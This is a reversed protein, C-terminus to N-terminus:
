NLLSSHQLFLPVDPWTKFGENPPPHASEQPIPSFPLRDSGREAIALSRSENSPATLIVPQDIPREEHASCCCSEGPTDGNSGCGGEGERNDRGDRPQSEADGECCHGVPSDQSLPATEATQAFTSYPTSTLPQRPMLTTFAGGGAPSRVDIELWRAAGNFANPGFENSANLEVTFLGDIVMVDDVAVVGGIM